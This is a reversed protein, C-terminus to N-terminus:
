FMAQVSNSAMSEGAKNIATVRYEWAKGRPQDMLMVATDLATAVNQWAGEPRERRQVCYAQVKGGNLPEGWQLMISTEGRDPASLTRPQGPATLATRPARGGWGLLKLKADDYDTATEAYRLVAKMVNSLDDYASTKTAVAQAAQAQAAVVSTQASNYMNVRSTLTTSDFPPTPFVTPNAELGAIITQALAIVESETRPFSAM